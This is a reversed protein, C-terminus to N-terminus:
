EECYQQKNVDKKIDRTLDHIEGSPNIENGGTEAMRSKDSGCEEQYKKYRFIEQTGPFNSL